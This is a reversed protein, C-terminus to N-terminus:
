ASREVQSFELEVPTSRGFILVAVRLRSKDYNVDEVVGNFDAFPGDIVRVMEGVEFLVKPRPSDHTQEMRNLIKEAEKDSIPLPREKTGGIFSVVNPSSKVVHWAEENMEMKVLLYGPFFKRQSKVKQGKKVEVFDEKPLLVETVVEELGSRRIVEELTLKVSKESGTKVRVVYWKHKNSNEM